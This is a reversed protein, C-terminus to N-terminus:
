KATERSVTKAKEGDWLASPFPPLDGTERIYRMYRQATECAAGKSVSATLLLLAEAIRRLYDRDSLRGLAWENIIGYNTNSYSIAIDEIIVWKKLLGDSKMRFMFETIGNTGMQRLINWVDAPPSTSFYISTVALAYNRSKLNRRNIAIARDLLGEITDAATKYHIRLRIEDYADRIALAVIREKSSFANYLTGQAVNARQSLERVGFNAIGKEAIM